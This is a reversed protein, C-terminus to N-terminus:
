WYGLLFTLCDLWAYCELIEVHKKLLLYTKFYGLLYQKMSQGRCWFRHRYRVNTIFFPIAILLLSVLSKSLMQLFSQQVVQHLVPIIKWVNNYQLGDSLPISIRYLQRMDRVTDLRTCRRWYRHANCVHVSSWVTTFCYLMFMVLNRARFGDFHHHFICSYNGCIINHGAFSFFELIFLHIGDFWKFSIFPWKTTLGHVQKKYTHM